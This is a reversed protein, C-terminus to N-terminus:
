SPIREPKVLFLQSLETIEPIFVITKTKQENFGIFYNKLMRYYM